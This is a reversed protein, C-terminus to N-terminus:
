LNPLLDTASLGREGLAQRLKRLAQAEIRRVEQISVTRGEAISLWAAVEEVTAAVLSGSEGASMM